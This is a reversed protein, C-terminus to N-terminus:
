DGMELPYWCAIRHAILPRCYFHEAYTPITAGASFVSTRAHLVLTLLQLLPLIYRPTMEMCQYSAIGYFTHKYCGGRGRLMSKTWRCLKVGSHSGLLKYGQKSLASRLMPTLMPRIEEVDTTTESADSDAQARVPMASLDEVEHMEEGSEEQDSDEEIM